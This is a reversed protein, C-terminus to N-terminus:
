GHVVGAALRNGVVAFVDLDPFLLGASFPLATGIDPIGIKGCGCGPSGLFLLALRVPMQSGSPPLWLLQCVIPPSIGIVAKLLKVSPRLGFRLLRSCKMVLM